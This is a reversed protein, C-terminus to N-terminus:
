SELLATNNGYARITMEYRTQNGTPDEPYLTREVNMYWVGPTHPLSKNARITARLREAYAEIVAPDVTQERNVELKYHGYFQVTINIEGVLADRAHATSNTYVGIVTGGDGLSRHLKDSRVPFQEAAYTEKLLTILLNRAETEPAM